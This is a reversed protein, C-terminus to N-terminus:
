ITILFERHKMMMMLLYIIIITITVNRHLLNIRVEIFSYYQHREVSEGVFAVHFPRQQQNIRSSSTARLQSLCNVLDRATYHHLQCDNRRETYPDLAATAEVSSSSPSREFIAREGCLPKISMTKAYSDLYKFAAAGEGDVTSNIVLLSFLNYNSEFKKLLAIILRKILVQIFSAMMMLRSRITRIICCLFCTVLQLLWHYFYCCCYCLCFDVLTHFGEYLTAVDANMTSGM